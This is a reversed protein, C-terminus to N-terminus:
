LGRLTSRQQIAMIRSNIAERQSDRAEAGMSSRPSETFPQYSTETAAHALQMRYVNNRYVASWGFGNGMITSAYAAEANRWPDHLDLHAHEPWLDTDIAWLGQWHGAGPVGAHVDYHDYGGSAALAIAVATKVDDGFFGAGKAFAAISRGAWYSM